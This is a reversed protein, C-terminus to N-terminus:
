DIWFKDAEPVNKNRGVAFPNFGYTAFVYWAGSSIAINTDAGTWLPTNGFGTGPNSAYPFGHANDYNASPTLLKEMETLYYDTEIQLGAIAFALAMQGTGEMFVADKDEDIDYGTIQLGNITATRTTLFREASYLTSIPYDEFICYSWSHNDLAYLYDPNGPWAVLNNDMDDWRETALFNLLDSHFSSYGNIANFADINGETVKYDLLSNDAAYGAFLGGDSDQLGMLWNGIESVLLDYTSQGTLAKYNNLAILLWANDGMWRHDSPVGESDRFQSFGGPGNTLESSIRDNFFDFINEARGTEGQLMFVMAALANDYLSVINGNEVSELLGNPLQQDNLWNFIGTVTASPVRTATFSIDEADSNVQFDSPSFTYDEATPTIRVEGQLDTISWNGQEDTLTFRSTPYLIKIGEIGQGFGDTVTGSVAYPTPDDKKCAFLLAVIAFTLLTFRMNCDYSTIDLISRTHCATM